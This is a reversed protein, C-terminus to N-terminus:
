FAVEVPVGELCPDDFRKSYTAYAVEPVPSERLANYPRGDRIHWLIRLGVGLTRALAIYPARSETTAHTADIVVSKGEGLANRAARQVAASTKLVDQELHVYGVSALARATTSKGSAMNGVLLVIEQGSSPTVAPRGLIADPTHFAAGIEFAFMADSDSWRYELRSGDRGAADGCMFVDAVRTIELESLLVDFLGRAPKRYVSESTPGKAVLCWPAWGNAAFLADLVRNIKTRPGAESRARSMESQNTIIAVVWGETAYRQLVSPVDGVFVWDDGDAAWRKGSKSVVLTGDLDFLALRVPADAPLAPQTSPFVEYNM